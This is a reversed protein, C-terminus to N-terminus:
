LQVIRNFLDDWQRMVTEVSYRKVNKRANLGMKRRLEKNEILRCIGDALANINLYEILMGDEGNTIINRPGHPCDFSVVPVGCAMSELIVLSFGEYRSSLVSISSECYKEMINNTPDHLVISNDVQNENVWSVVQDHLEGSGYINLVWDPHQKHVLSWAPILLDYGKADNYRGVMIVQKNLCTSYREPYFSMFNPIVFVPCSNAWDVKHEEALVILGDLKRVRSEMRWRLLRILYKFLPNKKELMHFNRLFQKTTHAEGICKSNGKIDLIFDIDRGLTTIIIDPKEQRIVKEAKRKYINMLKLYIFMRILFPHGYEKGFDIALDILRVKSLLPFAPERGMQSDTLILVEYGHEVLWNAKGSIIRDTGGKTTLATYLYLIKM